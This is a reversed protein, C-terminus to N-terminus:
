RLKLADGYLGANKSIGDWSSDWVARFSDKETQIEVRKIRGSSYSIHDRCYYIADVYNAKAVTDQSGNAYQIIVNM